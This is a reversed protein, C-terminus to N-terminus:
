DKNILVFYTFINIFTSVITTWLRFVKPYSQITYTIKLLNKQIEGYAQTPQTRAVFVISLIGFKSFFLCKQEQGVRTQIYEM